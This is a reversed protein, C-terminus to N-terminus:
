ACEMLTMGTILQGAWALGRAALWDAAFGGPSSKALVKDILAQDSKASTACLALAVPGLQLDFLRSGEPSQVYYDRKPAAQSILEVQRHNLGFAQYARGIVPEAARANPLFVRTLCSEIVAAAVPSEDLDALSQTAFIVSANKKRLTKLWTKLQQAFLPDDLVLWGEDVVVLTPRGDLRRELRHFLYTLVAPAAATGVLGEIEFVEVSPTGAAEGDGDLLAGWPGDLTFPSLAEKLAPDSVLARLGTLTRQAVPASALSELASWLVARVESSQAVGERALLMALWEAAWNREGPDDIRALPQLAAQGAAPDLDRWAGGMALAAARMSRGFDFAFVQSAGYRRFQLAMFALLVSKGAGTPGVVFTHGVDGVHLAFRFPTAGDALAFFLPPGELHRDSAPGAWVASLPLMHALNQTSLPLQRVNAYCHGPLGGLWAEVANLTEVRCTFGRGQIIKEALRLHDDAVSADEDAITLTATVLAMGAGDGGLVQLAEDADAAKNTADTDVLAAPEQTLAERLLVFVSKRKAFWQRRIRSLLTTAETKDLFLARTTWRYPFALGNLDDLLGPWTASPLGVVTLVRLHRDGLRPRVEGALPTDALLADLHMPTQPPVVAHDDRSVAAHLWTLTEEDDLWRLLPAFGDILGVLRDTQEIFAELRDRWDAGIREVNEYLLRTTRQQQDQPPLWVFTLAYRSEFCAGAAEFAARREEEVLASAADPFGGQPYSAVAVRRAEVFLGWGLGLRRLVNNMQGAVGVLEADTVSDLDGGRFAATRQFSGDKNLIVGPAVLAAWSLHDALKAGGRRYERLNWM